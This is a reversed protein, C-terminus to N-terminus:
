MKYLSRVSLGNALKISLLREFEEKNGQELAQDVLHRLWNEENMAEIEQVTSSVAVPVYGPYNFNSPQKWDSKGIYKADAVSRGTNAHTEFGMDEAEAMLEEIDEDPHEHGPLTTVTIVENRTLFAGYDLYHSWQDSMRTSVVIVTGAEYTCSLMPYPSQYLVSEALEYFYRPVKKGDFPNRWCAEGYKRLKATAFKDPIRELIEIQEPPASKFPLKPMRERMETIKFLHKFGDMTSYFLWEEPDLTPFVVIYGPEFSYTTGEYEVEIFASCQFWEHRQPTSSENDERRYVAYGYKLYSFKEFGDIKNVSM